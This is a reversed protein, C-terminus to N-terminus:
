MLVASAFPFERRRKEGGPQECQQHRQQQQQHQQLIPSLLGARCLRPNNGTKDHSLISPLFTYSPPHPPLSPLAHQTQIKRVLVAAATTTLLVLSSTGGRQRRRTTRMTRGRGPAPPTPKDQEAAVAAM